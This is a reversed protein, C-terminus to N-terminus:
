LMTRISRLTDLPRDLLKRVVELRSKLRGLDQYFGRRAFDVDIGHAAFVGACEAKWRGKIIGTYVYDIVPDSEMIEPAVSAFRRGSRAARASGFKEFMWGNEWPAALRVFDDKRWVAAQTSLLYRVPKGIEVFDRGLPKCNKFQPGYRNLYIVALSPDSQLCSLAKQIVDTRVLRTLFYDEQMYLVFTERTQSLGRILCESWTPRALEEKRWTRTAEVNQGRGEIDRRETNLYLPLPRLGSGYRDFLSFFPPWCDAFGDSSNLFIALDHM